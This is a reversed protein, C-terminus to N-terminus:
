RLSSKTDLNLTLIWPPIANGSYKKGLCLGGDNLRPAKDIPHSNSKLAQGGLPSRECFSQEALDPTTRTVQDKESRIEEGFARTRGPDLFAYLSEVGSVLACAVAVVTGPDVQPQSRLASQFRMERLQECGTDGKEDGVISTHPGPRRPTGKFRLGICGKKESSGAM